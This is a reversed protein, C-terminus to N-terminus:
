NRARDQPPVTFRFVCETDTCNPQLKWGAQDARDQWITQFMQRYDARSIRLRLHGTEEYLKLFKPQMWVVAETETLKELRVPNGRLNAQEWCMYLIFAKREPLLPVWTKAQMLYGAGDKFWDFAFQKGKEQALFTFLRVQDSAANEERIHAKQSEEIDPFRDTPQNSVQDLRILISEFHQLYWTGEANLFTFSWTRRNGDFTLPLVSHTKDGVLYVEPGVEWESWTAKQRLSGSCQPRSRPIM